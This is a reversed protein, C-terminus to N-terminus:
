FRFFYNINSFFRLELKFSFVRKNTEGPNKIKRNIEVAISDDEFFNEKLSFIKEFTAPKLTEKSYFMLFDQGLMEKM